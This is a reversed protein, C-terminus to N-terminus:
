HAIIWVTGCMGQCPPKVCVTQKYNQPPWTLDNTSNPMSHGVQGLTGRGRSCPKGIQGVFQWHKVLLLNFARCYSYFHLTGKLKKLTNEWWSIKGRNTVPLTSMTFPLIFSIRPRIQDSITLYWIPLDFNGGFFNISAQSLTPKCLTLNM